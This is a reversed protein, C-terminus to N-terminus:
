QQAKSGHQHLALPESEFTYGFAALDPHVYAELIRRTEEDYYVSYHAHSSPNRRADAGDDAYATRALGCIQAQLSPWERELEELKIVRHVLMSGDADVLWSLQSANFWADRENGHSRSGFLHASPTGVPFAAALAKIWARFRLVTQNRDRLWPGAPPLKREECHTPRSGIPRNCAAEQLLFHFMSVQRAFPNRVLAFTFAARWREAGIVRRQLSASAHFFRTGLARLRPPLSADTAEILQHRAHTYLRARMATGGAKNIHVFAVDRYASNGRACTALPTTTAM